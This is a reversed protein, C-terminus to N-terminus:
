VIVRSFGVNPTRRVHIIRPGLVRGANGIGLVAGACLRNVRMAPGFRAVHVRLVVERGM